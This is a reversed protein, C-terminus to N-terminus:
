PRIGNKQGLHITLRLLAGSRRAWPDEGVEIGHKLKPAIANAEAHQM